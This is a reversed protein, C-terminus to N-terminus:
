FFAGFIEINFFHHDMAAAFFLTLALATITHVIFAGRFGERQRALRLLLFLTWVFGLWAAGHQFLRIWGEHLEWDVAKLVELSLKEGILRILVDGLEFLFYFHYSLFGMFVIPLYAQGYRSLHRSYADRDFFRGLLSVFVLALVFAATFLIFLLTMGTVVPMQMERLWHRGLLECGLAGMMAFTFISLDAKGGTEWIERGPIRLNLNLSRHQCNKICSGCLKCSLNSDVAPALLFLPCGKREGTGTYCQHGACRATCVNKDARLEFPSLRAFLGMMGGLGCFYACWGQREYFVSFLFSFLMMGALLWGLRLPFNRMEFTMEMWMIILAVAMIVWGSFRRLSQPFLREKKKPFLFKAAEGISGMPCVTCWFRAWFFSGAVMLPWGLAWSYVSGINAEPKKPGFILFAVLIVFFPTVTWQIVAPFYTSRFLKYIWDFRLLDIKGRAEVKRFDLFIDEAELVPGNALVIGRKITEALEADNGPWNHDLLVKITRDSACVTGKELEKSYKELYFCVHDPIDKKRERLPPIHFSRTSFYEALEPILRGDKQLEAPNHLSACILRPGPEWAGMIAAQSFKLDVIHRWLKKQAEEGLREIGLLFLTGARGLELLGSKRRGSEDWGFLVQAPTLPEERGGPYLSEERYFNAILYVSRFRESLHFVTRGFQRKGVGSEGWVLLSDGSKALRKIEAENRKYFKTQDFNPHSLDSDMDVRGVIEFLESRREETQALRGDLKLMRKALLRSLNMALAPTRAMMSELFELRFFVATSDAEAVYVNSSALDMEGLAIREGFIDGPMFVDLEIEGGNERRAVLRVRGEILVFLGLGGERPFPVMEGKSLFRRSAEAFIEAMYAPGIDRFLECDALREM